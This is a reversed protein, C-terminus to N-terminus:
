GSHQHLTGMKQTKTLPLYAVTVKTRVRSGDRRNAIYPTISRPDIGQKILASIGRCASGGSPRCRRPFHFPIDQLRSIEGQLEKIPTVQWKYFTSSSIGHERFLAPVPVESSAQNLIAVIQSVGFRSTKM